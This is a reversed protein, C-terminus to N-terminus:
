LSNLGLAELTELTLAGRALQLRRQFAEMAKWTSSGFVGDIKGPDFGREKLVRQLKAVAADDFRNECQTPYWALEVDSEKKKRTVTQYESPISIREVRAPSVMKRVRVTEFSAAVPTRIIQAPTDLVQRRTIEYVGPVEVRRTSAPKSVIFRTITKYTAPETVLCAFEGTMHEVSQLPGCSSQWSSQEPQDIIREKRTEYEAPVPELRFSPPEVLVKEEIWRYTAPVVSISETAEKIIIREETWEFQAPVVSIKESAERKVISERTEAYKAPVIVKAFCQGPKVEPPLLDNQDILAAAHAPTITSLCLLLSCL